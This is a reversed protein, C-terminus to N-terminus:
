IRKEIRVKEGRRGRKNLAGLVNKGLQAVKLSPM